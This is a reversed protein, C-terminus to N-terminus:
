YNYQFMCSAHLMCNGWLMLKIIKASYKKLILTWFYGFLAGVVTCIFLILFGDNIFDRHLVIENRTWSLVINMLNYQM